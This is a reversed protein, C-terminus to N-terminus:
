KVNLFEGLESEEILNVKNENRRKIEVKSMSKTKSSTVIRIPMGLLDADSLKIGASVNRDDWLVEKGRQLLEEYVLKAQKEGGELSILHYKYPAVEEPWIIGKSDHSVEVIAGMLRGIGIGYCGTVVSKVRDHQDRYTVEFVKTFKTKNKFINGVEIAKLEKLNKGHCSPCDPQIEIIEKNIAVDCKKCLYITDEGVETETQFEHSFKSFSGGSAFTLYTKNGIGCRQFIKKYAGKVVEYYNDLDENTAHFSYLDKMLFERCRLLGSKARKEDRFKNQIQYLYLPLDRFSYILKKALPMIVEEHTPGLAFDTKTYFSKFRFLNDETDWRGTLQWNEKPQLSPMLLEYGGIKNIEERIIETIRNLVKLGLPLFTYVGAMLQDIYGARLLLDASKSEIEQGSNRRTRLPYSSLKM